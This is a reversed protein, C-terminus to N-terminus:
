CNFVPYGLKPLNFNLQEVCAATYMGNWDKNILKGHLRNFDAIDCSFVPKCCALLRIKKENTSGILVNTSLRFYYITLM